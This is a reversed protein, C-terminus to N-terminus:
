EAGHGGHNARRHQRVRDLIPRPEAGFLQGPSQMTAHHTRHNCWQADETPWNQKASCQVGSTHGTAKRGDGIAGRAIAEQVHTARQGNAETHHESGRQARYEQWRGRSNAGREVRDADVRAQQQEAGEQEVVGLLDDVLGLGM